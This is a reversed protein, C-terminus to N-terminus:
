AMIKLAVYPALNLVLTAIEYQAMWQFYIRPLDAENVRFMKSHTRAMSDPMALILIAVFALLGINLVTCWGLFTTLTAISDV